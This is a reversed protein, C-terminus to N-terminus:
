LVLWAAALFGLGLPTLAVPLARRALALVFELAFILLAILFFVDALDLNGQWLGDDVGLVASVV